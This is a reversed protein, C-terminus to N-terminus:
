KHEQFKEPRVTSLLMPVSFLTIGASSVMDTYLKLNNYEQKQFPTTDRTYGYLSMNCRRASEGIVLVITKIPNNGITLHSYDVAHNKIIHFENYQDFAQIVVRITYFPSSSFLLSSMREVATKSHYFTVSCIPVLIWLLSISISALKNKLKIPYFKVVYFHFFLLFVFIAILVTMTSLMSQVENVNSNLLSLAHGYTFRSDYILFAGLGFIQNLSLVFCGGFVVSKLLVYKSCYISSLFHYFSFLVVTIIIIEEIYTKELSVFYVFVNCLLAAILLLIKM